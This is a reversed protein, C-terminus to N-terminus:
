GDLSQKQKKRAQEAQWTEGGPCDILQRVPCYGCEWEDWSPSVDSELPPMEELHLRDRRELREAWFADLEEQTFRLNWIRLMASPGRGEERGEQTHHWYDGMIHLIALRAETTETIACYAAVQALYHQMEEPTKKASARTSKWEGVLGDWWWFCDTTGTIGDREAPGGPLQPKTFLAEHSHGIIFVLAQEDPTEGLVAARDQGLRRLVWAKRLCYILDSVHIGERPKDLKLRQRLEAVVRERADLDEVITPKLVM